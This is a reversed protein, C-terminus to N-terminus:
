NKQFCPIIVPFIESFPLTTRAERGKRYSFGIQCEQKKFRNNLVNLQHIISHKKRGNMDMESNYMGEKTCPERNATTSSRLIVPLHQLSASQGKGETRLITM